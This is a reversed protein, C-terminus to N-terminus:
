KFFFDLAPSALGLGPRGVQHGARWPSPRWLGAQCWPTVTGLQSARAVRSLDPHASFAPPPAVFPFCFLGSKRWVGTLQKRPFTYTIPLSPAPPPSFYIGLALDIDGAEPM